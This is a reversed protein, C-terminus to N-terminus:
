VGGGLKSILFDCVCVYACSKRRRMADEEHSKTGHRTPTPSAGGRAKPLFFVILYLVCRFSSCSRFCSRQHGAAPDNMWGTRKMPHSVSWEM